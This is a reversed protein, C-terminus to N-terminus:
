ADAGALQEITAEQLHQLNAPLRDVLDQQLGLAGVQAMAADGLSELPKFYLEAAMTRANARLKEVIQNRRRAVYGEVAMEAAAGTATLMAPGIVLDEVIDHIIHGHGPVVFTLLLGGVDTSVRVTQLLKLVNPRQQLAQLIDRAAAEIEADTKALHTAAVQNFEDTLQAIRSEWQGALQDWFPHHRQTRQEADIRQFLRKLVAHHATTYAGLEPDLNSKKASAYKESVFNFIGRAATKLLRIPIRQVTRLRSIALGLYPIDPNLLRLLETNLQKFPNITSGGTLYENEYTTVFAAVAITVLAKWDSRVSLEMRAPELVREIRRRVSCLATRAGEMEKQASLSAVAAQRLETAEPHDPGWLDAEEGDTMYRLAVVQPAPVPLKLRQSVTPFVDDTQKRIVMARDKKPTKNLCELIPIGADNLHCLWEVLDSVTYKEVSTVYVVLDAATVAEVVAAVYRGSGVADCDPADWLVINDPLVGTMRQAVTYCDFEGALLRDATVQRFRSFAHPNWAFLPLPAASFAQAHRTHGGEPSTSAIADAALINIVTSKGVNNGGFVVIHRAGRRAFVLRAVRHRVLADVLLVERRFQDANEGGGLLSQALSGPGADTLLGAGEYANHLVELDAVIEQFLSEL